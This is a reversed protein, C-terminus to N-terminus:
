ALWRISIQRDSGLPPACCSIILDLCDGFSTKGTAYQAKRLDAGGLPVISVSMPCRIYALESGDARASYCVRGAIGM